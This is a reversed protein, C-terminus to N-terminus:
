KQIQISNTLYVASIIVYVLLIAIVSSYIIHLNQTNCYEPTTGNSIDETSMVDEEEKVTSNDHEHPKDIISLLLNSLKESIKYSTTMRLFPYTISINEDDGPLTITVIRDAFLSHGFEFKMFEEASYRDEEDLRLTKMHDVRSIWFNCWYKGENSNPETIGFCGMTKANSENMLTNNDKFHVFLHDLMSHRELSIQTSAGKTHLYAVYEDDPLTPLIDNIFWKLSPVEWLGKEYRYHGKVNLEHRHCHSLIMDSQQQTAHISIYIESECPKLVVLEEFFCKSGITIRCIM